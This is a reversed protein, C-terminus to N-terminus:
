FFNKGGNQKQFYSFNSAFWAAFNKGGWETELCKWGKAGTREGERDRTENM